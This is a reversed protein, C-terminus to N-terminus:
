SVRFGSFFRYSKRIRKKEKEEKKKERRSMEGMWGREDDAGGTEVVLSTSTSGGVYGLGPGYQNPGPVADFSSLCSSRGACVMGTRLQEDDCQGVQLWALGAEIVHLVGLGSHRGIQEHSLIGLEHRGTSKKTRQRWM